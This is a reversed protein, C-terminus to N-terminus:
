GKRLQLSKSILIMSVNIHLRPVTRIALFACEKILNWQGNSSSVTKDIEEEYKANHTQLYPPAVTIWGEIWELSSISTCTALRIPPNSRPDRNGEEVVVGGVGSVLIVVSRGGFAVAVRRTGHKSCSSNRLKWSTTLKATKDQNGRKGHTGRHTLSSLFYVM